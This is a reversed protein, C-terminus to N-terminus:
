FSHTTKESKRVDNKKQKGGSKEYKQEKIKSNKCENKIM